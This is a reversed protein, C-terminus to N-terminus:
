IVVLCKEIYQEATVTVHEKLPFPLVAPFTHYADILASLLVERIGESLCSSSNSPLSKCIIFSARCCGALQSGWKPFKWQRWRRHHIGVERCSWVQMPDTTKKNGQFSDWEVQEMACKAVAFDRSDHMQRKHHKIAAMFLILKMNLHFCYAFKSFHSTTAKDSVRLKSICLLSSPCPLYNCSRLCPTMQKQGGDNGTQLIIGPPQEISWSLQRAWNSNLLLWEPFMDQIGKGSTYEACATAWIFMHVLSILAETCYLYGAQLLYPLHEEQLSSNPLVYWLSRNRFWARHVGDDKPTLAHRTLARLHGQWNWCRQM